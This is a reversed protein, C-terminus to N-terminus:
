PGFGHMVRHIKSEAEHLSHFGARHATQMASSFQALACVVRGLVKPAEMQALGVLLSEELGSGRNPM